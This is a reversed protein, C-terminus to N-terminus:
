LKSEYDPNQTSLFDLISHTALVDEDEEHEEENDEDEDPKFSSHSSSTDYSFSRFRKSFNKDCLPSDPCTMQQNVSTRMFGSILTSKGVKKPLLENSSQSSKERPPPTHYKGEESTCMREFQTKSEDDDDFLFTTFNKHSSAATQFGSFM